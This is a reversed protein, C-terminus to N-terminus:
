IIIQQMAQTEGAQIVQGQTIATEVCLMTLYGADEMDQMASSKDLWPNWVVISDHGSSQVRTQESGDEIIVTVPQCLHVRDTEKDFAYQEPTTFRQMGRTKDLYDGDLGSLSCQRVDSVAFYTHLACGYSFSENGINTTLLQLSCQQAIDIILSLEAKGSFGAGSSNQPQLVVQTGVDSDSTTVIHWQQSRVYGHAPFDNNDAQQQKSAHAGFWPWCVPVGGRIAAKGDLIAAASLWIRERQDHKPVFSLLQGGFLAIEAVALANDVRLIQIKERTILTCSPSLM